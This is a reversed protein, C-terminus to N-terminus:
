RHCLPRSYEGFRGRALPWGHRAIDEASVSVVNAAALASEEEAGAATVVPTNLLDLLAERDRESSGLDVKSGDEIQAYGLNWSNLAAAIAFLARVM